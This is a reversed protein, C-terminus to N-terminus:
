RFNGGSKDLRIRGRVAKRRFPTLYSKVGAISFITRSIRASNAAGDVKTKGQIPGGYGVAGAGEMYVAVGTDVTKTGRESLFLRVARYSGNRIDGASGEIEHPM